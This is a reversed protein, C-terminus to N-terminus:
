EEEAELGVQRALALGVFTLCLNFAVVYAVDYHAHFQSGFWGDRLFEVANLMPFWLAISQLGQPLADVVFAVGSLPMLLYSVPRWFHAVLESRESLSGVTFALGAGFWALLMWGGVVKLVNEPPTLWGFALLILSVLVLSTSTAMFELLLRSVYVDVIKVQRHHLLSRNAKLAGICRV